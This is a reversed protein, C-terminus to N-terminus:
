VLPCPHCERAFPKTCCRSTKVATIAAGQFLDTILPRDGPLHQTPTTANNTM